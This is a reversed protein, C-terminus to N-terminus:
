LDMKMTKIARETRRFVVSGRVFRLGELILKTEHVSVRGFLEARQVTLLAVSISPKSSTPMESRWSGDCRLARLWTRVTVGEM